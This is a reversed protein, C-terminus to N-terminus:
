FGEVMLDWTIAMVSFIFIVAYNWREKSTYLSAVLYRLAQYDESCLSDEHVLKTQLDLTTILKRRRNTIFARFMFFFMNGCVGLYWLLRVFEPHYEKAVLILRLSIAGTLGVGFAAWTVWEPYKSPVPSHQSTVSNM